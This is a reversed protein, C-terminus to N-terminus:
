IANLIDNIRQNVRKLRPHNEDDLYILSRRNYEEYDHGICSNKWVEKRLLRDELISKITMLDSLSMSEINLEM